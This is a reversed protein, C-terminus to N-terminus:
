DTSELLTSGPAALLYAPLIIGAPTAFNIIHWSSTGDGIHTVLAPWQKFLVKYLGSPKRKRNSPKSPIGRGTSGVVGNIRNDAQNKAREDSLHCWRNSCLSSNPGM